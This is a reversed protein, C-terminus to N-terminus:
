YATCFRPDALFDVNKYWVRLYDADYTPNGWRTLEAHRDQLEAFQARLEDGLSGRGFFGQDAGCSCSASGCRSWRFVSSVTDHGRHIAAFFWRTTSAISCRTKPKAAM